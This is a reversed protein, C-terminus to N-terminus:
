KLLNCEKLKAIFGAVDARAVSEAVEYNELLSNVLEDEEAGKELLKWIHASTENLNIVGNFEKVRSGVAVAIYSDAVKRLIFGDKLKLM